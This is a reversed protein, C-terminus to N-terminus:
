HVHFHPCDVPIPSINGGEIEIVRGIKTFQTQQLSKELLLVERGKVTCIVDVNTMNSFIHAITPKHTLNSKIIDLVIRCDKCEPYINPRTIVTQVEVSM